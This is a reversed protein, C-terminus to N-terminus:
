LNCIGNESICDTELWHDLSGQESMDSILRNEFHNGSLFRSSKALIKTYKKKLVINEPICPISEFTQSFYNLNKLAHFKLGM